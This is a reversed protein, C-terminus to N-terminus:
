AHELNQAKELLINSTRWNRSTTFVKLKKEFFSNSMKSQGYPNPSYFYIVGEGFKFEESPFSMNNVEEVMKKDPTEGLFTLYYKKPDFTYEKPFPQEEIIRNLDASKLVLTPVDFGYEKRIGNEIISKVQGKNFKSSKILLNGSQIYTDASEFGWSILQEKLTAMKIIKQGSVNIGRLLAIFIGM